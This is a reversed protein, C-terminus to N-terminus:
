SSSNYAQSGGQLNCARPLAASLSRAARRWLARARSCLGCLPLLAELLGQNHPPEGILGSRLV